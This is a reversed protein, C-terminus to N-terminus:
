TASCITKWHEDFLMRIDGAEYHTKSLTDKKVEPRKAEKKSRSKRIMDKYHADEIYENIRTVATCYSFNCNKALRKADIESGDPLIVVKRNFKETRWVVNQDKM